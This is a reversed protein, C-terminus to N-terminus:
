EMGIPHAMYLTEVSDQNETVLIDRNAELREFRQSEGSPWYVWLTDIKKSDGLGFTAVKELQTLYSSGCRIRREQKLSDASVVIKAGVASRNSETAKLHVRFYNGGVSDNRWLHAPGDNEVILIDLDGDHDIDAYAAARALMQQEWVGSDPTLDEFSGDGKNLYLQPRQRFTVGQLM